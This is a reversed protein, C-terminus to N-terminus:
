TARGEIARQAPWTHVTYLKDCALNALLNGTSAVTACIDVLGAVFFVQMSRSATVPGWRMRGGRRTTLQRAREHRKKGPGSLGDM